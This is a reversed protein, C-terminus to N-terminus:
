RRSTPQLYYAFWKGPSSSGPAAGSASARAGDRACRGWGHGHWGDEPATRTGHCAASRLMCATKSGRFGQAIVFVDRAPRPSLVGALWSQRKELCNTRRPGQGERQPGRGGRWAGVAHEGCTACPPTLKARLRASCVFSDHTRAVPVRMALHFFKPHFIPSKESPWGGVLQGRPWALCRPSTLTLATAGGSDLSREAM